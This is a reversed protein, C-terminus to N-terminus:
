QFPIVLWYIEKFSPVQESNAIATETHVCSSHELIQRLQQNIILKVWVGDEGTNHRGAPLEQPHHAASSSRHQLGLGGPLAPWWWLLAPVFVKPLPPYFLTHKDWWELKYQLYVALHINPYINTLGLLFISTYDDKNCFTFFLISMVNSRVGKWFHM